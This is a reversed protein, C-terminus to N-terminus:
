PKGKFVIRQLRFGIVIGIFLVGFLAALSLRTVLESKFPNLFAFLFLLSAVALCGWVALILSQVRSMAAPTLWTRYEGTRLQRLMQDALRLRSRIGRAAVLSIVIVLPVACFLITAFRNVTQYDM